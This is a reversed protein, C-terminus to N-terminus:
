LSFEPHLRKMSWVRSRAAGIVSLCFAGVALVALYTVAFWFRHDLDGSISERFGNVVQTMPLVRGITQFFGPSTVVPYTGGASTLQLMMLVMSLLRGIASGFWVNLVQLLAIFAFSVLVAFGFVAGLHEPRLKLGWVVVSVLVVAQVVGIMLGSRLNSWVVRTARVPAALSRQTLPPLIMWLVLAGVFFALGMFYPAFGVGNTRAQHTYSTELDVPTVMVEANRDASDGFSPIKGAADVLKDRLTVSGDRVQANGVALNAAGEALQRASGALTHSGSDLNVLGDDLKQAGAAVQSAGDALAPTSGALKQVGGNLQQAGTALQSAGNSATQLGGALTTAGSSVQGAGAALKGAADNAQDLGTVLAPATQALQQNGAAVQQAGASTQQAGAALKQASAAAKQQNAQVESLIATLQAQQAPTLTAALAATSQALKPDTSGLATALQSAGTAVQSAGTAVQASGDALKTAAGPLAGAKEAAAGLGAQLQTAGTSVQQAGSAVQQAGKVASPMQGALQTAGDSLKQAGPALQQAGANLQRAGDALKATAPALTDAGQRASTAGAALQDAGDALKAAGDSLKQSGDAASTTGDALQKAGDAAQLMGSHIEDVGVLVKSVAKEGISAAVSARVERLVSTLITRSTYGNADDYDVKLPASVPNASGITDVSASFGEPITVVALYRGSRLGSAATASDTVTWDLTGKDLLEKSIDAGASLTTGDERTIPRDSQVLAVPIRDLHDTPSWFAWLYLAGYLLPFVALTLLAGITMPARFFRRLELSPGFLRRLTSM